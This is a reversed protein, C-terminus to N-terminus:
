KLAPMPSITHLGCETKATGAWRGARQDEGANVSKTCPWCGISPYGNDHMPNYPVGNELVYSWV